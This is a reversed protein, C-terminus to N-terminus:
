LMKNVLAQIVKPDYGAKQLNTTRVTGNGWKGAIVEKAIQENTKKAPGAPTSASAGTTYALSIWGVGSKLKGWGNQEQVITYVEGKILGKKGDSRYKKPDIIAFNTGSGARINLVDATVRVQKAGAPTPTSQAPMVPQGKLESYKRRVIDYFRNIGMDLTRHPCYKGSRSQHTSVVKTGLKDLGWGYTIMLRAVLEAGNIEAALFKSGGSKSYCIEIGITQRNGFGSSGDGAHWANRNLPVGLIAQVDDVAYHYSVQNNNSGMYSVENKANADNATNHITIGQPTMINPCKTGYKSSPVLMQVITM